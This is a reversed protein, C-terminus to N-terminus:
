DPDDEDIGIENVGSSSDGSVRPATAAM